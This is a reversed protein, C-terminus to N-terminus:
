RRRRRGGHGPQRNLATAAALERQLALATVNAPDLAFAQKLSHRCERDRRQRAAVVARGAHVEGLLRRIHGNEPCVKLGKELAGIAEDPQGDARLISARRSYIYSVDERGLAAVESLVAECGEADAARQCSRFREVLALLADGSPRVVSSEPEIALALDPAVADPSHDAPAIPVGVCTEQCRAAYRACGCAVAEWDAQKVPCQLLRVLEAALVPTRTPRGALLVEDVAGPRLGADEVARRALAITEAVVPAIIEEFETRRLQWHGRVIRGASDRFPGIELFVEDTGDLAIRAREAGALLVEVALRDQSVDLVGRQALRRAVEEVILADFTEAGIGLTGEHCLGRPLGNGVAMASAVFSGRGLAFVLVTREPGRDDYVALAAALSEDVLAVQGFGAEQTAKRLAARQSMGFCSPVGVAVGTVAAGLHHEIRVRLERLQRGVVDTSDDLARHAPLRPMGLRAKVGCLQLWSAFSARSREASGTTHSLIIETHSIPVTAAPVARGRGDEFVAARLGTTGVDIGLGDVM